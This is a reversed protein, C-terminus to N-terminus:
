APWQIDKVTLVHTYHAKGLQHCFEGKAGKANGCRFTIQKRWVSRTSCQALVHDETGFLLHAVLPGCIGDDWSRPEAPLADSWVQCIHNVDYAHDMHLAPLVRVCEEKSARRLDIRVGKPCTAGGLKGECCLVGTKPQFARAHAAKHESQACAVFADWYAEGLRKRMAIRSNSQTLLASWRKSARDSCLREVDGHLLRHIGKPPRRRFGLLPLDERREM